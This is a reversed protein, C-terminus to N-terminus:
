AHPVLKEEGWNYWLEGLDMHSLLHEINEVENMPTIQTSHDNARTFIRVEEPTAFNLLLPNHTTLIIQCPKKGLRGEAIERLKTFVFEVRRPHIHNDPEEILLLSPPNPLHLITLYGLILLIGESVESAPIKRGGSNALVFELGKGVQKSSQGNTAASTSNPVKVLPLSIGALSPALERLTGEIQLFADRHENLLWDLVAPLGSGDVQLTPIKNVQLEVPMIMAETRLHFAQIARFFDYAELIDQGFGRGPTQDSNRAKSLITDLSGHKHGVDHKEQGDIVFHKGSESQFRHEGGSLFQELVTWERYQQSRLIELIYEITPAEHRELECSFRMSLEPDGMWVLHRFMSDGSFLSGDHFVRPFGVAAQQVYRIAQLFSSKGANNPGILVTLPTLDVTVDRLCKFNQFQVQKLMRHNM